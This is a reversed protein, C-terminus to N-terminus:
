AGKSSGGMKNKKSGPSDAVLVGVVGVVGLTRCSKVEQPSFTTHDAELQLVKDSVARNSQVMRCIYMICVVSGHLGISREQYWGHM